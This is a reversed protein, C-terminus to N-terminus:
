KRELTFDITNTGSAVTATLPTSDVESYQQPVLWKVRTARIRKAKKQSFHAIEADTSEIKPGDEAVETAHITVRHKGVLAGDNKDFTTLEYTGDATISGRAPRGNEPWFQVSGARVVNGDFTIAGTVRGMEPGTPGCGTQVLVVAALLLHKFSM